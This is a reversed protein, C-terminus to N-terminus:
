IDSGIGAHSHPVSNKTLVCSLIVTDERILSGVVTIKLVFLSLVSKSIIATLDTGTGNISLDISERIPIIDSIPTITVSIFFISLIGDFNGPVFGSSAYLMM